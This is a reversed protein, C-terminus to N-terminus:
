KSLRVHHLSDELERSVQPHARYHNSHSIHGVPEPMQVCSGASKPFTIPLHLRTLLQRDSPTSKALEMTTGKDKEAKHQPHLHSHKGKSGGVQQPAVGRGMVNRGTVTAVVSGEKELPM